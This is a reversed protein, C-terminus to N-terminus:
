EAVHASGVSRLGAEAWEAATPKGGLESTVWDLDAATYSYEDDAGDFGQARADTVCSALLTKITTTDM